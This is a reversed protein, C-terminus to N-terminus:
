ASVEEWNSLAPIVKFPKPLKGSKYRKLIKGVSTYVDIIKPNLTRQPATGNTQNMSDKANSENEKIKEMILDALNVAGRGHTLGMFMKLADEDGADINLESILKGGDYDVEVEEEEEEEEESEEGKHSINIVEEGGSNISGEDDEEEMRM